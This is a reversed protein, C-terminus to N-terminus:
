EGQQPTNHQPDAPPDVQSPGEPPPNQGQGKEGEEGPEQTRAEFLQKLQGFTRLPASGTLADKSLPPPPTAPKPKPKPVDVQAPADRGPGRSGGPGGRNPGGPGGRGGGPGGRGGQQARQPLFRAFKDPVAGPRGQGERQPPRDGRQPPPGGQGQQQPPPGGEGQPRPGRPPGGQPRREGGQGPGGQGQGQPRGEGRRPGRPEGKEGRPRETGPKVMTLSVRKRDGDVGMVWVTVVDGVSVTDHPSKIYRNALQSIHVLGSDKLGIDVFAGFDVVNLVTGKLEMGATLDELKLVGKKFIPKPLDERPDREPRALAEFIDHLTPEGIGLEQAMEPLNAQNLKEHLAPLQDRHTLIDPTFGFKELVKTAIEYSEPHIWTRDLPNAAGPIKLFGAAQTFSAPGVGEVEKIQDRNTFPGKEKRYDVLRRATLANMGSVHRLLPVSATNLDVGVFNVCSEIVSDLSDKLQKPNVDHQYLGVGINQPEIKVLESLPDQLRRGISITGRTTADFEPFEERGVPSASYVSAGAENVIVYSLQALLPDAPHPRPPPPPGKPKPPRPAEKPAKPPRTFDPAPSPAKKPPSSLPTAPPAAQEGNSPAPSEAAPATEPPAEAPASDTVVPPAESPDESPPVPHEHTPLVAPDEHSPPPVTEIPTDTPAQEPNSEPTSEPTPAPTDGEDPAGGTIPPLAEVPEAPPHEHTPGNTAPAEAEPAPDHHAEAAPEEHAPTAPADEAERAEEVLQQATPTEDM